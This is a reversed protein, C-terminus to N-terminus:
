DISRSIQIWTFYYSQRGKREELGDKPVYERERAEEERELQPHNKSPFTSKLYFDLLETKEEENPLTAYYAGFLMYIRNWM